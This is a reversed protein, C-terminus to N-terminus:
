VQLAPSKGIFPGGNCQLLCLNWLNLDWQEFRQLDNWVCELWQFLRDLICAYDKSRVLHIIAWRKWDNRCCICVLIHCQPLSWCLMNHSMTTTSDPKVTMKTKNWNNTESTRGGVDICFLQIYNWKYVSNNNNKFPGCLMRSFTKM